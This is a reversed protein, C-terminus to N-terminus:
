DEDGEYEEDEAEEVPKFISLLDAMLTSEVVKENVDDKVLADVLKTIYAGSLGFCEKTAKVYNKYIDSANVIKRKEQALYTIRQILQSRTVPFVLLENIIQENDITPRGAPNKASTENFHETM